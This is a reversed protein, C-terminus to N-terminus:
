RTRAAGRPIFMVYRELIRHRFRKKNEHNRLVQSSVRTQGQGKRKKERKKDNTLMNLKNSEEKIIHEGMALIM